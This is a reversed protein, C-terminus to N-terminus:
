NNESAIGSDEPTSAEPEPSVPSDDTGPIDAESTDTCDGSCSDTRDCADPDQAAKTRKAFIEEFKTWVGAYLINRLIDINEVIPLAEFARCCSAMQMTLLTRVYSNFDSGAQEMRSRIPLLPNFCGNESDKELDDYADLLYIFKGLFNNFLIM